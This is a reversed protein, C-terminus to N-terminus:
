DARMDPVLPNAAASRSRYKLVELLGSDRIGDRIASKVVVYIVWMTVIFGALSAAASFLLLRTMEFEMNMSTAREVTVTSM